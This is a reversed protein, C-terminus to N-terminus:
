LIERLSSIILESCGQYGEENPTVSRLRWVLEKDQESMEHLRDKSFIEELQNADEEKIDDVSEQSVSVSHDNLTIHCWCLVMVSHHSSCKVNMYVNMDLAM